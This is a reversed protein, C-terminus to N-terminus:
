NLQGYWSYGISQVPKTRERLGHRIAQMAKGKIMGLAMQHTWAIGEPLVDGVSRQETPQEVVTTEGM